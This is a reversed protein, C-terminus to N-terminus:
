KPFRIGLRGRGWEDVPRAAQKAEVDVVLAATEPSWVLFQENELFWKELTGHLQEAATVNNASERCVLEAPRGGVSLHRLSPVLDLIAQGAFLVRVGLQDSLIGLLIKFLRKGGLVSALDCAVAISAISNGRLLVALSENVRPHGRVSEQISPDDELFDRASIVLLTQHHIDSSASAADELMRLFEGGKAGVPAGVHCGLMLIVVACSPFRVLPSM